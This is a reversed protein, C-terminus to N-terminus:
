LNCAGESESGTRPSDVRSLNSILNDSSTVERGSSRRITRFALQCLAEMQLSKDSQLVTSKVESSSSHGKGRGKVTLTLGAVLGTPPHAQKGRLFFNLHFSM